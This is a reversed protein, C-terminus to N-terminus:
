FLSSKFNMSLSTVSSGVYSLMRARLVLREPAGALIDKVYIKLKIRKM